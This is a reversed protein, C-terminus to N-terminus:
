KDKKKLLEKKIQELGIQYRTSRMNPFAQLLRRRLYSNRAAFEKLRNDAKETLAKYQAERRLLREKKREEVYEALETKREELYDRLEMKGLELDLMNQEARLRREQRLEERSEQIQDALGQLQALTGNLEWITHVTLVLDSILLILLVETLAVSTWFPVAALAGQVVPDVYRAAVVSLAGFMLSNRLCVRGNINCRYTSYDWWKAHFLKEMIYSTFYEIASTLIMGFVFLLIAHDKLPRLFILVSIAGCGYIPCLPGTLFGRNIFHGSGLSCYTTECVWGLFSYTLFSLFLEM